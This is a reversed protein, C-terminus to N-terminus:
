DPSDWSHALDFLRADLMTDPRLERFELGFSTRSDDGASSALIMGRTPGSRSVCVRSWVYGSGGTWCRVPVGAIRDNSGRGARPRADRAMLNHLPEFGGAYEDDSSGIARSSLMEAEGDDTIEMSHVFGDVVFARDISWEYQVGQECPTPTALRAERRFLVGQRATAYFWFETRYDGIAEVYARQAADDGRCIPVGGEVGIETTVGEFPDIVGRGYLGRLTGNPEGRPRAHEPPPDEARLTWHPPLPATQAAAGTALLVLPTAASLATLM